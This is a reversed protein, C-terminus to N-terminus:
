VPVSWMDSPPCRVLQLNGPVLLSFCFKILSGSSAPSTTPSTDLYLFAQFLICGALVAINAQRCHTHIYSHKHTFTHTHSHLLILSLRGCSFEIFIILHQNICFGTFNTFWLFQVVQSYWNACFQSNRPCGSYSSQLILKSIWESISYTHVCSPVGKEGNLSIKEWTKPWTLLWQTISEEMSVECTHSSPSQLCTELLM